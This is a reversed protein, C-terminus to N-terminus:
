SQRVGSAECFLRDRRCPLDRAITMQWFVEFYKDRSVKTAAPWESPIWHKASSARFATLIIECTLFRPEPSDYEMTLVCCYDHWAVDINERTQVRQLTM